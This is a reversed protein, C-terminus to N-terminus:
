SPKTEIYSRGIPRHSWPANYSILGLRYAVVVVDLIVSKRSIQYKLVM